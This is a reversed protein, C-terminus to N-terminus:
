RLGATVLKGYLTELVLQSPLRAAHPRRARGDIRRCSM